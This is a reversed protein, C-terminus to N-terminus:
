GTAGGRKRIAARYLDEYKLAAEDWTFRKSMARGILAEMAEPRNYFTHVAWGITDGGGGAGM